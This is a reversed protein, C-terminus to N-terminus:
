KSPLTNFSAAPRFDSIRNPIQNIMIIQSCGHSGKNEALYNGTM